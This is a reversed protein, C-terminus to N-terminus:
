IALIKKPGLYKRYTFKGYKRTAPIEPKHKHKLFFLHTPLLKLGYKRWVRYGSKCQVFFSTLSKKLLHSSIRLFSRIRDCKSFFDNISFKM